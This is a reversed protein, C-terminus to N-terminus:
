TFMIAKESTFRPFVITHVESMKKVQGMKFSQFLQIGNVEQHRYIKIEKTKSDGIGFYAFQDSHHKSATYVQVLHEGNTGTFGVKAGIDVPAIDQGPWLAM